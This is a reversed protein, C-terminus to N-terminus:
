PLNIPQYDNLDLVYKIWNGFGYKEKIKKAPSIYPLSIFEELKDLNNERWVFINNPHYFDYKTVATNNTILKKDYHLAEFTRFSLGEHTQNLFDLAINSTRLSEINDTYSIHEHIFHIPSDLYEAKTVPDKSYLHINTSLNLEKCKKIFNLIGKMRKEILSGVFFVDYKVKFVETDSPLNFYFNTLPLFNQEQDQLDNKDFVFFRDFLDLYKYIAPFRHLGDWQYGVMVKSKIRIEDLIYKPYIDARILLAYDVPSNINKLTKIVEQGYQEFKLKNKYERDNLFVKRIFNYAKQRWNKYRFKHETYSIDITNFGNQELNKIFLKNTGLGQPLGLLLTPKM